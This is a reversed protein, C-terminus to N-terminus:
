VGGAGMQRLLWARAYRWYREATRPVIGLAASAEENTLGSFYRLKVLDAKVKDEAALKELAEDLALLDDYSVESALDLDELDVRQMAGGRKLRRKGRAREVLIRRMAEAAASFFHARNEWGPDGSGVLRMYAEHVLATAELTQGPKEQSLKWAALRRLEQYIVPLLEDAAKLDGRQIAGLIRTVEQVPQDPEM